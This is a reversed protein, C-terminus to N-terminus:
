SNQVGSDDPLPRAPAAAPTSRSTHEALTLERRSDKFGFFLALGYFLVDMTRFNQGLTDATLGPKQAMLKLCVFVSEGSERALVAALTFLNGALIGLVALAAAVIAFIPHRGKGVKRMATAVGVGIGIAIWGMRINLTVAM